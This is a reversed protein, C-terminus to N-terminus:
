PLLTSALHKAVLKRISTLNRMTSTPLRLAKLDASKWIESENVKIRCLWYYERGAAKFADHKSHIEDLKRSTSPSLPEHLLCVHLAHASGAEAEFVKTRSIAIVEEATRVFTDVEYGLADQLQKAIQKELKSVDKVSASFIVNGSAIFTEVERFGASEFIRKLESMPPRRKGLNIGRLFAVYRPM